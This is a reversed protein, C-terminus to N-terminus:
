GLLKKKNTEPVLEGTLFTKERSSRRQLGKREADGAGSTDATASPPEPTAAPPAPFDPEDPTMSKMLAKTGVYAGGGVLAPVLIEAM